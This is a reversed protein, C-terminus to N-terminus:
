LGSQKTIAAELDVGLTTLFETANKVVRDIAEDTGLALDTALAQSDAARAKDKMVAAVAQNQVERDAALEEFAIEIEKLQNDLNTWRISGEEEM